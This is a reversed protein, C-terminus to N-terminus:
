KCTTRVSVIPQEDNVTKDILVHVEKVRRLQDVHENLEVFRVLQLYVRVFPMRQPIQFGAFVVFRCQQREQLIIQLDVVVVLRRTCTETAIENNKNGCKYM